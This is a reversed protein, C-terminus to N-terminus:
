ASRRRRAHRLSASTSAHSSGTLGGGGDISLNAVLILVESRQCRFQRIDRPQRALQTPGVDHMDEGGRVCREQERRQGGQDHSMKQVPRDHEVVTAAFSWIVQPPRPDGAGSQCLHVPVNNGRLEEGIDEPLKPDVCRDDGIDDVQVSERVAFALREPRPEYRRSIEFPKVVDGAGKARKAENLIPPRIRCQRKDAAARIFPPQALQCRIERQSAHREGALDARFRNGPKVGVVVDVELARVDVVHGRRHEFGVGAPQRHHRRHSSSHRGNQGVSAVAKQRREVVVLRQRGVDDSEEFIRALCALQCPSSMGGAHGAGPGGDASLPEGNVSLDGVSAPTRRVRFMNGGGALLKRAAIIIRRLSRRRASISAASIRPRPRFARTWATSRARKAIVGGAQSRRCSAVASAGSEASEVTRVARSDLSQLAACVASEEYMTLAGCRKTM